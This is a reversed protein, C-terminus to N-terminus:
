KYLLLRLALIILAVTLLAFLIKGSYKRSLEAGIRAGFLAGIATPIAVSFDVAGISLYPVLAFLVCVLLQFHATATAVHIPFKLIKTLLPVHLIGGGTGVIPAIFGIIASLIIGLKENLYYVYKKGDSDVIIRKALRTSPSSKSNIIVDDEESGSDDMGIKSSIIDAFIFVALGLLMIGILVEFFRVPIYILIFAGLIAGPITAIGFKTGSIVDIRKQQYYSITGSFVNFFIVCLSTAVVDAGTYRYFLLFFPVLIPGGGIGIMTGYAGAFAGFLILGIIEFM